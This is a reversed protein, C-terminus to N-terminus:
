LNLPYEKKADVVCPTFGDPLFVAIDYFKMSHIKYNAHGGYSVNNEFWKLKLSWSQSM